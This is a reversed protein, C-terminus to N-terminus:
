ETAERVTGFIWFRTDSYRNYWTLDWHGSAAVRLDPYPSFDEPFDEPVKLEAEPPLWFGYVVIIHGSASILAQHLKLLTEKIATTNFTLKKFPLDVGDLTMVEYDKRM